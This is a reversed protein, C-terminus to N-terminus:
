DMMMENDDAPVYEEVLTLLLHFDGDYKDFDHIDVDDKSGNVIDDIIDQAERIRM